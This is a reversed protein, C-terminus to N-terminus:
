YETVTTSGGIGEMLGLNGGFTFSVKAETYPAIIIVDMTFM